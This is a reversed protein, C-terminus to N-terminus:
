PLCMLWGERTKKTQIGISKRARKLTAEAIGAEQALAEVDVAPRAGDALVERLFREAENRAGGYKTPRVPRLLQDATLDDATKRWWFKGEEDISYEIPAPMAALNCKLPAIARRGDEPDVAALLVSRALGVFGISGGVRYLAREAERKNLHAIALVAVGYREAFDALPQLSSRIEADRHADVGALLAAIPDVIVLGVDDNSAVHAALLDVSLLGFPEQTGEATLEGEIVFMRALAAGAAEARPRITDATGDEGNWILVSQPPQPIGDPLPKGTTVAAAIALSAFSKGAGPDGVLLTVKGKPIRAPWLWEIAQPEVDALRALVLARCPRAPEDLARRDANSLQIM